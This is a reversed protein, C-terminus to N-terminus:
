NIKIRIGGIYRAPNQPAGNRFEASATGVENGQPAAGLNVNRYRVDFFNHAKIFISFVSLQYEIFMNGIFYGPISQYQTIDNPKVAGVNIVRQADMGIFRLSASLNRFQYSGGFKITHNSIGPLNRIDDESEDHDLTGELYGYSGYLSVSSNQNLNAQYTAQLNFGYNQQVGLNQYIQPTEVPFGELTYNPGSPVLVPNILGTSESYFVNADLIFIDKFLYKLAAETTGITQPKLDPNPLQAFGASFTQTDEDYELLGYQDFTYQPSPELYARGYILKASLQKSPKWVLGLRPNITSGFRTNNDYRIGLTTTFYDSINQDYEAYVGFNAYRVKKITTELGDPYDSNITNAVIPNHPTFKKLPYELDNSRPVSLFQEFTAGATVSGNDSIQYNFIQEAKLKWSYSYLYAPEMATFVNRFNSWPDLDYRSGILYSTSTLKGKSFTYNANATNTYQGLFSERNYVSNNPSNATTSPIRAYNGFYNISFKGVNLRTHIAYTSVPHEELPIVRNNPTIPGFITNFTGTRLGQVGSQYDNPYYDSLDPQQDYMFQGSVIFSTKPSIKKGMILNANGYGYQGGEVRIETGDVEEPKRSIINIVGSFADAGYLASSPGYIVEIQEAFHVPYNELIPLIENTPSSVRVGDILILFKDSYRLGRISVDNYYRPDALRDIKFAPLDELVEVLSSYGRKRIQNRTVTIVKSPANAVSKKLIRSTGSVELNFLEELELEFLENLEQNQDQANLNSTMLAVLLSILLAQFSCIKM